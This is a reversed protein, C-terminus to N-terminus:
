AVKKAIERALWGLLVRDIGSLNNWKDLAADMGKQTIVMGNDMDEFLGLTILEAKGVMFEKNSDMDKDEKYKGHHAQQSTAM